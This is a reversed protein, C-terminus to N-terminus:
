KTRAMKGLEAWEISPHIHLIISAAFRTLIGLVLLFLIIRSLKLGQMWIDAYEFINRSRISVATSM